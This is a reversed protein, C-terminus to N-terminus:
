LAEVGLCIQIYDEPFCMALCHGAPRRVSPFKVGVFQPTIQEALENSPEYNDPKQCQAFSFGYKAKLQASSRRAKVMSFVVTGPKFAVEFVRYANFNTLPRGGVKEKARAALEARSTEKSEAFYKAGLRANLYRKSKLAAGRDVDNVQLEIRWDRGERVYIHPKAHFYSQDTDLTEDFM